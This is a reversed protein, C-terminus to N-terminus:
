GVGRPRSLEEVEASAHSRGASESQPVTEPPLAVLETTTDDVFLLYRHQQADLYSMFAAHSECLAALRSGWTTRFWRPKQRAANQIAQHHESLQRIHQRVDSELVAASVLDGHSLAHLLRAAAAQLAVALIEYAAALEHLAGPSNGIGPRAPRRTGDASGAVISERLREATAAKGALDLHASILPAVLIEPWDAPDGYDRLRELLDRTRDACGLAEALQRHHVLAVARGVREVHAMLLHEATASLAVAALQPGLAFAAGGIVVARVGAQGGKGAEQAVKLGNAIMWSANPSASVLYLGAKGLFTDVVRPNGLLSALATAAPGRVATLDSRARAAHLEDRLGEAREIRMVIEPVADCPLTELATSGLDVSPQAISVPMLAGQAPRGTFPLAQHPRRGNLLGALLLSLALAALMAAIAASTFDTM